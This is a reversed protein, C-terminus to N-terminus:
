PCRCTAFRSRAYQRAIARSNTLVSAAENVSQWELITKGFNEDIDSPSSGLQSGQEDSVLRHQQQLEAYRIGRRPGGRRSPQYNCERGRTLCQYTCIILETM